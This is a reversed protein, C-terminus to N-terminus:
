KKFPKQLRSFYTNDKGFDVEKRLLGLGRGSWSTRWRTWPSTRVACRLETRPHHSRTVEELGRVCGV